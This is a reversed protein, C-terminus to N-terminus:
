SSPAAQSPAQHRKADVSEALDLFAGTWNEVVERTEAATRPNFQEICSNWDQESEPREYWQKLKSSQGAQRQNGRRSRLFRRQRSRSKQVLNLQKQAMFFNDEDDGDKGGEGKREM